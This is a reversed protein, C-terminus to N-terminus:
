SHVSKLIIEEIFNIIEEDTYRDKLSWGRLAEFSIQYVIMSAAFYPDKINFVKKEVGRKLIMEFCGIFELEKKLTIKLFSKPLHMSERYMLLAMDRYNHVLELMKRLAARLQEVPNEIAFVGHKNLNETWTSYFADFVLCLIDDKKTIYDYLNGITIGTAKSIERMSTDAYGKKTFLRSARVAIQLHRKRILEPDKIQSKIIKKM